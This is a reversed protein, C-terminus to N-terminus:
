KAGHKRLIEETENLPPGFTLAKAGGHREIDARQEESLQKMIQEAIYPQVREQTQRLEEQRKQDLKLPTVNDRNTANPDAGHELLIEVFSARSHTVAEHLPANGSSDPKNIDAGADLLIKLMPESNTWCTVHLPTWGEESTGTNVDAGKALLLKVIEERGDLVEEHLATWGAGRFPDQRWVSLMLGGTESKSHAESFVVGRLPMGGVVCRSNLLKPDAEVLKAMKSGDGGAAAAFFERVSGITDPTFGDRTACQTNAGKDLLLQAVNGNGYYRAHHLPTWGQVDTRDIDAGKTLLMEAVRTDGRVTKLLEEYQCHATEHLPTQGASDQANVDAGQSLLFEVMELQNAGVAQHLPTRGRPDKANVKLGAGILQRAVGVQGFRAAEHLQTANEGAPKSIDAGQALLLIAIEEFDEPKRSTRRIPDLDGGRRTAPEGREEIRNTFYESEMLGHLAAMEKGTLKAGRKLLMEVMRPNGSGIGATLPTVGDRDSANVDAGSEILVQAKAVVGSGAAKELVTIRSSEETANVDAGASILVRLTEANGWDAAEHLPPNGFEDRANVLEPHAGLLERIVWPKCQMIANKLQEMLAEQLGANEKGAEQYLTWELEINFFEDDKCDKLINEKRSPMINEAGKFSFDGGRYYKKVRLKALAGESTRLAIAAGPQLKRKPIKTQDIKLSALSAYGISEFAKDRVLVVRADTPEPFSVEPLVSLGHEWLGHEWALDRRAPTGVIDHDIDWRLGLPIVTVGSKEIIKPQPPSAEPTQSAAPDPECSVGGAFLM